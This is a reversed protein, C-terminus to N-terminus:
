FVDPEIYDILQCDKLRYIYFNGIVKDLEFYKDPRYQDHLIELDLSYEVTEIEKRLDRLQSDPYKKRFENSIRYLIHETRDIKETIPTEFLYIIDSFDSEGQSIYYKVNYKSMTQCFGFGSIKETISTSFMAPSRFALLLIGAYTSYERTLVKEEPEITQKIYDIAQNYDQSSSIDANSLKEARYHFIRYSGLSFLSVISILFIINLFRRKTIHLITSLLFCTLFILLIVFVHRYYHHFFIVKSDVILYACCSFIFLLLIRRIKKNFLVMGLLLGSLSIIWITSPFFIELQRIILYYVEWRFILNWDTLFSKSFYIVRQYFFIFFSCLLFIILFWTFKYKLIFYRIIDKKVLYYTVLIVVISSLVITLSVPYTYKPINRIFAYFLVIPLFSLIGFDVLRALKNKIGKNSFLIMPIFFTMVFPILSIRNLIALGCLLFASANKKNLYAAMAFFLFLLGPRDLVTVFFYNHFFSNIVLFLLGILAIKKTFVKKFFLYIGLFILVDLLAMLIRVLLLFSIRGILPMFPYFVWTYFPFQSYIGPEGQYTDLNVYYFNQNSFFNQETYANILNPLYTKFKDFNPSSEIITNDLYPIKLLFFAILLILTLLISWGGEKYMWKFVSRLIPIRNINKFKKPFDNVKKIELSKEKEIEKNPASKIRSIAIKLDVLFKSVGRRLLIFLFFGVVILLYNYIIRFNYIGQGKYEKIGVSWIFNLFILIVLFWFWFKENTLGKKSYVRNIIIFDVLIFLFPIIDIEQLWVIQSSLFIRLFVLLLLIIVAFWSIAYFIRKFIHTAYPSLEQTWYGRSFFSDIKKSKFFDIKVM